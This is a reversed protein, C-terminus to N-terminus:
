RRGIPGVKESLWRVAIVISVVIGGAAAKALIAQANPASIAAILISVAVVSVTIYLWRWSKVTLPAPLIQNATCSQSEDTSVVVTEDIPEQYAKVNERGEFGQKVWIFIKWFCMLLLPVIIPWGLANGLWSYNPEDIVLDPKSILIELFVVDFSDDLKNLDPKPKPLKIGLRALREQVDKEEQKKAALKKKALELENKLQTRKEEVLTKRDFHYSFTYSVDDISHQIIAVIWVISCIIWIRFLGRRYNM